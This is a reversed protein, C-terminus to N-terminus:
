IGRRYVSKNINCLISNMKQGNKTKLFGSVNNLIAMVSPRGISVFHGTHNDNCAKLTDM